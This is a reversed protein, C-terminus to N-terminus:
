DDEGFEECDDDEDEGCIDRRKLEVREFEVKRNAYEDLKGHREAYKYDAIKNGYLVCDDLYLKLEKRIEETIASLEPNSRIAEINNETKEIDENQKEVEDDEEFDSCEGIPGLETTYKLEGDDEDKAIHIDCFFMYPGNTYDYVVQDRHKCFLCCKEPAWISYWPELRYHRQVIQKGDATQHLRTEKAM